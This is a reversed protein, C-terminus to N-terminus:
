CNDKSNYFNFGTKVLDQKNSYVQENRLYFNIDKMVHHTNNIFPFNTGNGDPDIFGHDYLDRWKWVKDISDFRTNEPLFLIDNTKATEVYPSLERLKIRYHTQYYYGVMNNSTVGSYYSNDDQGHNFIKVGGITKNHSFRHYSESIVREKFDRENYEVFAGILTTGKPLTTGSTFTLGSTNGTFTVGSIATETSGSFMQDVWSNHFNFKYGVKPPYTFYGNGNRLIMTVYVETPTYGLNNTIGSLNLNNKFGFLVSEPRNREVLVDNEQLLNEFLIKKENEWIPQEFGVKDLIYDDTTTLTKHKHVYYQSTTGSINNIDLCRKGFVVSSLTTGTTFQAKSITIVYKESNYIENGVEDVYYTRWKLDISTFYTRPSGSYGYFTNGSTSLTIYEGQNIGHEVPSTLIYNSGDDEVRFPIGDKATFSFNTGGSLSYVMPYNTDGSYVYSLYLNWNHYPADIPTIATHGTYGTVVINPQATVVTGGSLPVNLERYVDNRLLSFENYPVFGYESVSPDDGILYLNKKLPTYDTTGSYMNRFVMKLKGYIKYDISKNREKDFLEQLNLVVDMDGERLLSQETEVKINLNIDEENAKFFRKSPLIIEKKEM